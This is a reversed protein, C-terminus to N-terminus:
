CIKNMSCISKPACTNCTVVPKPIVVPMPTYYYGCNPTACDNYDVHDHYYHKRYVGEGPIYGYVHRAKTLDADKPIDAINIPKVYSSRIVDVQGKNPYFVDLDQYGVFEDFHNFDDHDFYRGFDKYGLYYKDYPGTVTPINSNVNYAYYNDDFEFTRVPNYSYATALSLSMLFMAMIAIAFTIIKKILNNNM